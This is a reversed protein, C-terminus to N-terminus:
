AVFMRCNGVLSGAEKSSFLPLFNWVGKRRSEGIFPTAWVTMVTVLGSTSLACRTDQFVNPLQSGTCVGEAQLSEVTYQYGKCWLRYAPPTLAVCYRPNICGPVLCGGIVAFKFIAM